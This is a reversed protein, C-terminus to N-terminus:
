GSPSNGRGDPVEFFSVGLALDGDGHLWGCPPCVPWGAPIRLALADWGSQRRGPGSVTVARDRLVLQQGHSACVVFRPPYRIIGRAQRNRAIADAALGGPWAHCSLRNQARAGALHRRDGAVRHRSPDTAAVCRIQRPPSVLEHSSRRQARTAAGLRGASRPRDPRAVPLHQQGHRHGRAYSSYTHFVRDSRRLFASLGHMEGTWGQWDPGLEM